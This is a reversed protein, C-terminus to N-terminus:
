FLGYKKSFIQNKSINIYPNLIHIVFKMQM